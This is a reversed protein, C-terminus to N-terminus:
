GGRGTQAPPEVEELISLLTRAARDWTFGEVLHRSADRREGEPNRIIRALIDAAAAEDPHWWDLGHFPPYYADSYPMRAPGVSCPVLHAVSDDLYSTYASHRPAILGAGRAGARTLPLDWGEGHSLSFYHTAMAYLMAIGQEDYRETLFAIPAAEEPRRGVAAASRELLRAAKRALDAGGKGIKLLLIADDDARTAQLWVRLVGDLNKRAIFDSVNLVRVRYDMVARGRPGIIAPPSTLRDEEALAIGPPCVRLREPPHGAAIWALRSSETPVIVLEHMRNCAVWAKPICPGEFMSYNVTPVRPIPEVLAPTLFSLALRPRVPDGLRKSAAQLVPDEFRPRWSEDERLGILRLTAGCEMLGRVFHQAFDGYGSLVSFPARVLMGEPCRSAVGDQALRQYLRARSLSHAAEKGLGAPEGAEGGALVAEAAEPRGLSLWAQALHSRADAHDPCLALCAGLAEVAEGYACDSLLTVALGVWRNPDAPALRVARRLPRLAGEHDGQSHLLTGLHGLVDSREPMLALAIRFYAAAAPEARAQQVVALNVWGEAFGPDVRLLRFLFGAAEELRGQEYCVVGALNLSTVDEPSQQLHDVAVALAQDRRGARYHAIALATNQGM